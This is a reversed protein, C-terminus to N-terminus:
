DSREVGVVSVFVGSKSSGGNQKLEGLGRHLTKFVFPLKVSV